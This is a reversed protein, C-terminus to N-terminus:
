HGVVASTPARPLRWRRRLGGLGTAIVVLIAGNLPVSRESAGSACACGGGPDEGPGHGPIANADVEILVGEGGIRTIVALAPGERADETWEGAVAWRTSVPGSFTIGDADEYPIYLSGFLEPMELDDLEVPDYYLADERLVDAGVAGAMDAVLEGFEIGTESAIADPWEASGAAAWIDRMGDEGTEFQALYANLLFMGYQHYDTLSTVSRHPAEAYWQSSYAYWNLAPRSLEVGWEASAEWYWAEAGGSWDRVAFQLAHNFEHVAVDPTFGPNNAEYEPNVYMVPYGAPYEDSTFVTTFGTGSVTPDLIVWLLYRDSSVPMTWGHASFYPWSLELEEGIAVALERDISGDSWQISFNTTDYHHALDAGYLSKGDVRPHPEGGPPVVMRVDDVPVRGSLVDLVHALQCDM